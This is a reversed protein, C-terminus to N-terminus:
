IADAGEEGTRIRIANAIEYVFIKGDGINGTNLVRRATEVVKEVPVECVVIEVKVKPLLDVTFPVGRYSETKGKQMGSGLVQTVTMGTVGIENLAEKLEEFKGSRGIIDIKTLKESM